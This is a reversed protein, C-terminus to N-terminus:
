MEAATFWCDKKELVGGLVHSGHVATLVDPLGPHAEGLRWREVVDVVEVPSLMGYPRLTHFDLQRCTKLNM